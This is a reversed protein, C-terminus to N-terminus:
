PPALREPEPRSRPARPAARPLTTAASVQNADDELLALEAAIGDVEAMQHDAAAHARPYVTQAKAMFSFSAASRLIRVSLISAV